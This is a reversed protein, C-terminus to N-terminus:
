ASIQCQRECMEDGETLVEFREKCVLYHIIHFPDFAEARNIEMPECTAVMTYYKKSESKDSYFGSYLPMYQIFESTNLKLYSLEFAREASTKNEKISLSKYTKEMETYDFVCIGEMDYIWDCVSDVDQVLEEAEEKEIELIDAVEEAELSGSNFLLLGGLEDMLHKCFGKSESACDYVNDIFYVNDLLDIWHHVRGNWNEFLLNRSLFKQKEGREEEFPGEEGEEIYHFETPLPLKSLKEGDLANCEYLALGTFAYAFKWYVMEWDEYQFLFNDPAYVDLEQLMYQYDILQKM